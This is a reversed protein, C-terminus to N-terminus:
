GCAARRVTVPGQPRRPQQWVSCLSGSAVGHTPISTQVRTARPQGDITNLLESFYAYAKAVDINKSFLIPAKVPQAGPGYATFFIPRVTPPSLPRVCSHAMLKNDCGSPEYLTDNAIICGLGTSKHIQM